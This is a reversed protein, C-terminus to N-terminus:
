KSLKNQSDNLLILKLDDIFAFKDINEFFTYSVSYFDNNKENEPNELYEFLRKFMRTAAGSAPVFKAFTKQSKENEFYETYREIKDDNLKIIGKNLTAASLINIFPFNKCFRQIQREIQEISQKHTKIQEIQSKTFM